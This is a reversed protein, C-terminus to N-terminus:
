AVEGASLEPLQMPSVKPQEYGPIIGFPRVVHVPTEAAYRVYPAGDLDKAMAQMFKNATSAGASGLAQALERFRDPNENESIRIPTLSVVKEVLGLVERGVNEYTEDSLGALDDVLTDVARIQAKGRYFPGNEIAERQRAEQENREATSITM